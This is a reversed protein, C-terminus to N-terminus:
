AAQHEIDGDEGVQDFRVAVRKSVGHEQQTVGYLTDAIQMTRKSHTIVIFQSEKVFEQVILNFRQNNAEDLAADVEDLICFPSPKSKFISLLLAVCTMTKEGGSLQSISVPQKGPPRAIVEIGAELIDIKKVPLPQGDPGIQPTQDMLETELYLDAKGGGFLKRFMGQFQERVLNFTKEFRESSAQNIEEILEELQRKSTTLDAVQDALFKQRTELEDLEGIADLNVNGLRQIKDRLMKIEDAVANWDIEAPQYGSGDEGAAERYKAPLDLQLEEQTRQILSERRVRLEGLQLELEHVAREAEAHVKRIEELESDLSRVQEQLSEAQEAVERVQGTLEDQQRRLDAEQEQAVTLEQEVTGQRVQLAEASRAIRELQQTLETRAASQRQVQQQSALQKEQVQGLAVRAGTLQEALRQLEVGLDQLRGTSAEIAEQRQTQQQDMEVRQVALRANESQLKEAQESVIDLERDILPQERRLAHLRDNVQGLQSTLEVKQTNLQYFENRLTNMEADLQRAQATGQEIQEQLKAIVREAQAIQKTVSQLETRRSLIGMSAGLKGIRLTGDSEMLEGEQTVFRHGVSGCAQLEMADALTDVVLTRGLLHQVLATDREEVQVLDAAVRVGQPHRNWDYGDPQSRMRDTCLISVRSDLAALPERAAAAATSDDVVLWQDRGDLAAEVVKVHEIDVKVLDALLGRVFPFKQERQKLVAKVGEAVGERRNELDQLVKQRSTLASRHERAESMERTLQAVQKSLSQAELKKADMGAQRVAIDDVVGQLTESLANKREDTAAVEANIAERRGSLREHQSALNRQEIEIAGLRSNVQALRRMLELIAGKHQEIEQNLQNLQLQGEKFAMASQEIAIRQQNLAATLEALTRTESELAAVAEELRQQTQVRDAAFTEQQEAIQELQQRCFGQQQKVQELTSRAQQLAREIQQHQENVAQWTSRAEALQRQRSQVTEGADVVRAGADQQKM